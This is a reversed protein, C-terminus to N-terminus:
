GAALVTPQDDSAASADIAGIRKFLEEADARAMPVGYFYGQVEECGERLLVTAQEVTEVGEANVHIGLARGLSIIARVIAQADTSSSLDAIFSRDIKIKDFPFRGLYGLSSYGTGFDDMAIRVGRSKLENLVALTRETDKILLDETIELELRQAAMGSQSLASEVTALLNGYTFQDPTLNVAVSLPAWDAAEKCATHLIWETMPLILGSSEAVPIFECPPVEGREPHHWRLLAEVGIIRQTALDIQPQYRLSLQNDTQAKRLDAELAKRRQLAVDMEKEFFHYSNRGSTKSKYLALDANKLLQGADIKADLAFAAMGISASIVVDQAGVHFPGRLKDIVREALKVAADITECDCQIIAFEDGALRAVTDEPRVCASIRGAAQRLVSDGAAHGLTDNIDKFHDLDISHVIVIREKRPARALAQELRELFLIRNPLDTLADHHALFSLRNWARELARLPLVRLAGISWCAQSSSFLAM